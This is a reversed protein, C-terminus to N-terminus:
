HNPSSECMFRSSHAIREFYQLNLPYRFVIESTKGRLDLSPHLPDLARQDMVELSSYLVINMQARNQICLRYLLKLLLLKRCLNDFLSRSALPTVCELLSDSM